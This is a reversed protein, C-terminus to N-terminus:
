SLSSPFLAVSNKSEKILETTNIGCSLLRINKLDSFQTLFKLISGNENTIILDPSHLKLKSKLKVSDQESDLIIIHSKFGNAKLIEASRTAGQIFSLSNLIDREIAEDVYSSDM